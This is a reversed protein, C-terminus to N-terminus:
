RPTRAPRCPALTAPSPRPRNPAPGGQSSIASVYSVEAPLGDRVTVAQADSPGHNTATLTYRAPEGPLFPSPTASKTIAVDASTDVNVHASGFNNSLDPDRTFSEVAAANHITTGEPTSPKVKAVITITVSAGAALAGLACIVVGATDHCSGASTKASVFTEEAPIVDAVSAGVANSPGANAAVITYTVNDGAHVTAPSATKTLVLDADTEVPTVDTATNNSPAPDPTTSTVSATNRINSSFLVNAAVRAIVTITEKAGVALDGLSCSVTGSTGVAPRICRGGPAATTASVYSTTAPLPDSVMVDDAVSPGNNTVELTYTLNNGAIVPKPSGVKTIAVDASDLLNSVFSASNNSQDPDPTSSTVHATNTFSQPLSGPQATTIIVITATGGVALTGLDCSVAGSAETCTTGATSTLSQYTVESPLPDSVMVDKAEAPGHNVVSLTYTLTNGATVPNPDAVKTIAVDASPAVPTVITDTNNSDDPDPTPPSATSNATATNTIDATTTPSVTVHITVTEKDGAPLTGLECTVTTTGSDYSCSGVSPEAGVFTLDAPLKDTVTVHQSDSPGKNEVTLIYSAPEGPVFTGATATLPGVAAKTIELDALADVDTTASATNNESNPDPTTSGVVANNTITTGPATSPDVRAVITVTNANAHGPAMTGFNCDVATASLSCTPEAPMASVFTTGAPASDALTVNNADSPGNNTTVLTYTIDDGAHVTGPSATKTVSMDASAGVPVTVTSTNNGLHPDFTTPSEITATNSVSSGSFDTGLKVTLTITGSAGSAMDGLACTVTGSSEGCNGATTSASVYTTGAPLTDSVTANVATSPGHNEALLSYVLDGGPATSDSSTTKTISLDASSGVPTDVENTDYTLAGLTPATYDLSGSNTVTTGAAESDVTVEFSVSTEDTPNLTGGSTANAGDGLRVVVQNKTSDFDGQDDGTADTLQRPANAGTLLDISGPVYTTGTPVSDHLVVDEAADGGINTFALTYRLTDGIRAPNNGDVDQVSKAPSAFNPAYNDIQTTIATPYYTDGNTEVTVTASTVDNPIADPAAVQTLDWGMMNSYAPNRSTDCPTTPPAPGCEAGDVTDQSNFFNGSPNAADTLLTSDVEMSDGTIAMDGEGTVVGVETNPAGSPPSLFGSIPLTVTDSNTVLAFGRFVTLNRLPDAPNQYAVVLSWGAFMDYGTSSAVDAGTWTGEGDQQVMTTVDAFGGYGTGHQDTTAADFDTATITQYGGNPGELKMQDFPSAPTDAPANLEGPPCAPSGGGAYACERGEWFLGAFLVTSGSPWTVTASSSNYNNNTPDVNVWSMPWANNDNNSDNEAGPNTLLSEQRATDCLTGSETTGTVCAENANGFIAIAGNDTESFVPSFSAVPQSSAVKTVVPVLVVMATMMLVALAVAAAKRWWQRADVEVRYHASSGDYRSM